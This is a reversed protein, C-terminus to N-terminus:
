YIIIFLLRLISSHHIRVTFVKQLIFIFIIFFHKFINKNNLKDLEDELKEENLIHNTLYYTDNKIKLHSRFFIDIRIKQIFTKCNMKSIIKLEDSNKMYERTRVDIIQPIQIYNNDRFTKFHNALIMFLAQKYKNKFEDTKFYRDAKFINTM